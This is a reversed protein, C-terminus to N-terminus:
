IDALQVQPNLQLFNTLTLPRNSEQPFRRILSLLRNVNIIAAKINKLVIDQTRESLEIRCGLPAHPFGQSIEQSISQNTRGVLARFKNSFDYEERANGVFDLVTCAEKDDALRLGRGLQQLFITLSE